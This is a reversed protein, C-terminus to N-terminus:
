SRRFRVGSDSCRASRAVCGAAAPGASVSKRPLPKRSSFSKYLYKASDHIAAWRAVKCSGKSAGLLINWQLLAM